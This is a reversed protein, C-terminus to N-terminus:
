TASFSPSTERSVLRVDSFGACLGHVPPHVGVEETQVKEGDSSVVPRPRDEGVDVEQVMLTTSLPHRRASIVRGVRLDLRSVDLRPEAELPLAGAAPRAAPTM